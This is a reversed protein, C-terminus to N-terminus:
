NIDHEIIQLFDNNVVVNQGTTKFVYNVIEEFLDFDSDFKFPFTVLMYYNLIENCYKIFSPEKVFRLEFLENYKLLIEEDVIQLDLSSFVKTQGFKTIEFDIAVKQDILTYLLISSSVYDSCNALYDIIEDELLRLNLTFFNAVVNEIDYEELAKKAEEITIQKSLAEVVYYTEFIEELSDLTKAPVYPQNLEEKLLLFAEDKQDNQILAYIYNVINEYYDGVENDINYKLKNLEM